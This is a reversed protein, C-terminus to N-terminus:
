FPIEADDLVKTPDEKSVSGKYNAFAEQPSRGGGMLRQGDQVWTVQDLYATIGPKGDNVPDYAVFNVDALVWAGPYFKKEAAAGEVQVFKGPGQFVFLRPEFKSKAGLVLSKAYYSWDKGKVRGKEVLEDGNDWPLNLAMFGEKTLTPWKARAVAAAKTKIAKIEAEDVVILQANYRAEGVEKGNRKVKSARLLSIGDAEGDKGVVRFTIIRVEKALAYLGEKNGM